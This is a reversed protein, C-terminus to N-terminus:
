QGPQRPANDATASPSLQLTLQTPHTAIIAHPATLAGPFLCLSTDPILAAAEEWTGDATLGDRGEPTMHWTRSSAIYDGYGERVDARRVAESSSKHADHSACITTCSMLSPEGAASHWIIWTPQRPRHRSSTAPQGKM